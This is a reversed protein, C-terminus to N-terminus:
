QSEGDGGGGGGLSWTSLVMGQGGKPSAQLIPEVGALLTIATVGGAATGETSLIMVADGKQLDSITVVPSRLLMQQLDSSGNPHPREGMGASAPPQTPSVAPASSTSAPAEAGASSAAGNPGGKLRMAIGQAMPLPLKHLQSEPTVRVRLPKKTALDLVTVTNAAADASIVTGSLNRFTGFVIEDANLESGDASRAGRAQLQDGPKAEALTAQKADEMHPSDTAYRRVITNKVAHIVIAKSGGLSPQSVTITGNTADVASVLGKLGRKQWDARDQAQKAAVDSQKMVVITSANLTKGDEALRGYVLIRDGAQLDQLQVPTANKLSTEGLPIRVVRSSDQVGVTVEAGTDPALTITNANIVKIVGVTKSAPTASVPQQSSPQAGPEALSWTTIACWTLLLSVAFVTRRAACM